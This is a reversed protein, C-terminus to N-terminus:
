SALRCTASRTAACRRWRRRGCCRARRRARGREAAHAFLAHLGARDFSGAAAALSYRTRRCRSTSRVLSGDANRQHVRRARRSRRGRRRFGHGGHRAARPYPGPCLGRAVPGSPKWPRGVSDTDIGYEWREGPDFALPRACPEGSASARRWCGAAAVYRGTDANWFEYTFGATHTLLHTLTIPRGARTAPDACGGRRFRRASASRQAGAGGIDPVPEELALRGEEVLLMAAVSTIAKTMSHIRFVTDATMAPGHALDRLGFAGEYLTGDATGAMAVVGPVERAEVARRLAKDIEKRGEARSVM